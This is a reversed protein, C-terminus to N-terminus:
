PSKSREIRKLSYNKKHHPLLVESEDAVGLSPSIAKKILNEERDHRSRRGKGTGDSRKGASEPEFFM